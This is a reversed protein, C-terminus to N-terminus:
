PFTMSLSTNQIATTQGEVAIGYVHEEASLSYAFDSATACKSWCNIACAVPNGCDTGGYVTTTLAGHPTITVQWFDPAYPSSSALTVRGDRMQRHSNEGVEMISFSTATSGQRWVHGFTTQLFHPGEIDVEEWTALIDSSSTPYDTFRSLTASASGCNGSADCARADMTHNGDGLSGIAPLRFQYNGSGLCPTSGAALGDFAFLVIACPIGNAGV